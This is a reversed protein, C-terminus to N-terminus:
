PLSGPHRHLRDAARTQGHLGPDAPDDTGGPMLVLDEVDDWSHHAPCDALGQGTWIWPVYGWSLFPDLVDKPVFGLAALKGPNIECCIVPRATAFFRSAGRLVLPEAGEVDMKVFAVEPRGQEEWVADLPRLRIALARDGSTEPALSARGIDDPVFLQASCESDGLGHAFLQITSFGSLEANASLEAGNGPHPEFAHVAGTPGAAEAMRLTWLGVNAGIDYCISGPTVFRDIAHRVSPEYDDRFLYIASHIGHDDRTLKIRIRSRDHIPVTKELSLAKAVQWAFLRMWFRPAPLGPAQVRLARYGDVLGTVNM